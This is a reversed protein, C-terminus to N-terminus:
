PFYLLFRLYQLIFCAKIILSYVLNNTKNKLNEKPLVINLFIALICSVVIGQGGFILRVAQPFNDLVAPVQGVGLGIGLALSVILISRQNMSDKNILVIGMTAIMSFMVIAAGGLVSAPMIAIIAGLKPFLSAGILLWAGIAVVYRSMVKTFSIIGVNQSFSTNPLANFVAALSSMLGDAVVAGSLEKETAERSDGGLTIGSVDGVTEVATVIYMILMAAIAPWHFTMGFRMPMPFSFWAAESVALFSIKGMPIAVLYGAIIGIFISATKIMGKGFQNLFIILVLVFTALALNSFSGFDDAGVGGGAYNIGTPLLSLGITLLVTGTVIPPFFRRIHKLFFGLFAEFFGGIFAAGLIGSLGFQQGIAISTPVFGFSTGMVVPLKAGVKGIPYVQILTAVGAMLMASQILFTREELGLGLSGAIIIPVTINGAFMAFVHQLGLPIAENLPPKGDIHFASESKIDIKREEM